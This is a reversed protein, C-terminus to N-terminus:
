PLGLGRQTPISASQRLLIAGSNGYGSGTNMTPCDAYGSIIQCGSQTSSEPLVSPRWRPPRQSLYKLNPKPGGTARLPRNVENIQKTDLGSLSPAPRERPKVTPPPPSPPDSSSVSSISSIKSHSPRSPNIIPASSVSMLCHYEHCFQLFRVM